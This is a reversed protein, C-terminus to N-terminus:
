DPHTLATNPPGGLPNGAVDALNPMRPRTLTLTAAALLGVAALLTVMAVGIGGAQALVVGSVLAGALGALGMGADAMGQLSVRREAPLSAGLLTSGGIFGMNWGVGLLFLAAYLLLHSSGDPSYGAHGAHVGDLGTALAAVALLVGSAAVLLGALGIVLPSGFRDSMWGSLPSPAFMGAVHLSIMLGITGLGVGAGDLEAPAAVMVLIMIFSAVAMALGGAIAGRRASSASAPRAGARGGDTASAAAPVISADRAVLLPDPRLFRHLVLVAGAFSVTSLMFPGALSPAGVAVAFAAAPEILLPGAVGGFATAAVLTGMARGRRTALDSAAYRAADSGAGAGGLLAMGVLFPLGEGSAAALAVLAAGVAGAAWALRLGARRGRRRMLRALPVAALATGGVTLAFPVGSLQADGFIEIAILAGVAVGSALGAGGVLQALLLTLLTRRQLRELFLPDSTTANM